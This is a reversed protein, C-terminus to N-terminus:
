LNFSVPKGRIILMKACNYAFLLFWTLFFFYSIMHAYTRPIWDPVEWSTSEGDDHWYFPEGEHEGVHWGAPLHVM